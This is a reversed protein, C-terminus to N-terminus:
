YERLAARLDGVRRWSWRAARPAVAGTGAILGTVLLPLFSLAAMVAWLLAGVTVSDGILATWAGALVATLTLVSALAAPVIWLWRRRRAFVEVIAVTPVVVLATLPLGMLAGLFVMSPGALPGGPDLNFLVAIVLLFLYILAAQIPFLIWGVGAAVGYRAMVGIRRM